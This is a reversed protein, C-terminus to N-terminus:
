ERAPLRDLVRGIMSEQRSSAEDLDKRMEKIGTEVNNVKILACAQTEVVGILRQERKNNEKLVWVLLTVFLVAWAGQSWAAKFATDWM